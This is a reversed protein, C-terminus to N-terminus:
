TQRRMPAIGVTGTSVDYATYYMSMFDTGLKWMDTYDTLRDRRDREPIPEVIPQIALYSVNQQRFTLQPARNVYLEPPYSYQVGDISFTLTPLKNIITHEPLIPLGDEIRAGLLRYVENVLSERGRLDSFSNDFGVKCRTCIVLSGLTVRDFNLTFQDFHISKHLNLEGEYLSRNTAGFLLKGPKNKGGFSLSFQKAGILDESMLVDLFSEGSRDPMSRRLGITVDYKDGILRQFTDSQGGTVLLFLPFSANRNYSELTMLDRHVPGCYQVTNYYNCQFTDNLSSSSSKYPSYCLGHYGLGFLPVTSQQSTIDFLAKLRQRPTGVSTEVYYYTENVRGQGTRSISAPMLDVSLTGDISEASSFAIISALSISLLTRHSFSMM